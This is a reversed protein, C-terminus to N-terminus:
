PFLLLTVATGKTSFSLGQDVRQVITFHGQTLAPIIFAMIFDQSTYGISHFLLQGEGGVERSVQLAGVAERKM